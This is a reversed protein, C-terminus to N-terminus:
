RYPSAPKAGSIRARLEVLHDLIAGVDVDLRPTRYRLATPDMAVAGRHSMLSALSELATDDLLRDVADSADFLWNFRRNRTPRRAGFLLPLRKLLGCRPEIFTDPPLREVFAARAFLSYGRGAAQGAGAIALRVEVAAGAVHGTVEFRAADFRLRLSTAAGDLREALAEEWPELPLAARAEEAAVAIAVAQAILGVYLREDKATVEIEAQVHEDALEVWGHAGLEKMASTLARGAEPRDPTSSSFLANVRDQDIGLQATRFGGLSRGDPARPPVWAHAEIGLLLPRALAVRVTTLRSDRDYSLSVQRGRSVGRIEGDRTARAAPVREGARDCAYLGRSRAAHRWAALESPSVREDIDAEGRGGAHGDGM